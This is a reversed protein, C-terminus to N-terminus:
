ANGAPAPIFRDAQPHAVLLGPTGRLRPSSGATAWPYAHSRSREGCARPHVPGAIVGFGALVANGAPAPIFRRGPRGGAAVCVREGCARPHVARPRGAPRIRQANGAPAPIFRRRADDQGRGTRTGRLRPSSGRLDPMSSFHHVREGCARPHVPLSSPTTRAFHANGAPAPIFRPDGLVLLAVLHTGRLRPSSGRDVEAAIYPSEREGCARPHVEDDGATRAHSFANGAPAPIFRKHLAQYPGAHDREGCARPHVSVWAFMLAACSANGAPAPIFRSQIGSGPASLRTGRLRPSSGCDARASVRGRSREGCARPHVPENRAARPM